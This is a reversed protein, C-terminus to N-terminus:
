IGTDTVLVTLPKDVCTTLRSSFDVCARRWPGRYFSDHGRVIGVAQSSVIIFVILLCM